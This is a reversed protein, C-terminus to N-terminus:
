RNLEDVLPRLYDEVNEPKFLGCFVGVVLIPAEPVNVLKVLISWLQKPGSNFLLLGDVFINILIENVTPTLKRFCSQMSKAIGHYWMEGGAVAYTEKGVAVPTKLLTRSDLPLPIDTTERVLRLLDNLVLNPLKQSLAWVRLRKAMLHQAPSNNKENLLHDEEDKDDEESENEIYEIIEDEDEDDSLILVDEEESLPFDMLCEEAVGDVVAEPGSVQVEMSTSPGPQNEAVWKKKMGGMRALARKRLLGSKKLQKIQDM